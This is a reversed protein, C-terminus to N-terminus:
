PRAFGSSTWVGLIVAATGLRSGDGNPSLDPADIEVGHLLPRGHLGHCSCGNFRTGNLVRRHWSTERLDSRVFQARRTTVRAGLNVASLDAGRLICDEFTADDLIADTLSTGALNCRVLRARHWTTRALCSATLDCDVLVTDDFRAGVLSAAPLRCKSLYLKSLELAGLDKGDAELEFLDPDGGDAHNRIAMWRLIRKYNAAGGPKRTPAADLSVLSEAVARDLAAVFAPSASERESEFLLGVERLAARARTRTISGAIADSVADAVALAAMHRQFTALLDRLRQLVHDVNLM